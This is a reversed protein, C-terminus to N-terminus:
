VSVSFVLRADLHQLDRGGLLVVQHEVGAVAGIRQQVVRGEPFRRAVQHIILADRLIQQLALVEHVLAEQRDPQRARQLGVREAVIRGLRFGDQGLRADGM